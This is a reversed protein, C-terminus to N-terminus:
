LGSKPWAVQDRLYVPLAAEASVAQGRTLFLRALVAIDQAMPLLTADQGHLASGLHAELVDKFAKFGSGAGFWEETDPLQVTQPASLTESLCATLDDATEVAYVCWYVQGMRADMCALIKKAGYVRYAGAALAMLDSVPVVPLQAGFALGQVVATAVRVGTFGGPGRGFALADLQNLSLGAETLLKEVMPLIMEAHAREAMQSRELIGSNTLLAATCQQTSTELALINM